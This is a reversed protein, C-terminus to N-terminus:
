ESSHRCGSSAVTMRDLRQGRLCCCRSQSEHDLPSVYLSLRREHQNRAFYIYFYLHLLHTETQPDAQSSSRPFPAGTCGSMTAHLMACTTALCRILWLVILHSSCVRSWIVSMDDVDCWSEMTGRSRQECAAFLRTEVEAKEM